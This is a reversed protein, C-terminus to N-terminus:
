PAAPELAFELTREWGPRALRVPLRAPPYGRASVEVTRDGPEVAALVFRGERDTFAREGSGRIRVEAMAVPEGYRGTVRGRVLTPPLALAVGVRERHGLVVRARVVGYRNGPDPLAARLTYKGPPLGPLHFHGDRGSATRDLRVGMREWAAGHQRARIGMLERFPAPGVVVEVRAGAVPRGTAADTVFGSVGVHSRVHETAAM